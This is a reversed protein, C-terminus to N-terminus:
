VVSKRDLEGEITGAFWDGPEWKRADGGAANIEAITESQEATLQGLRGRADYGKLERHLIHRRELHRLPILLLDLNRNSSNFTKRLWIFRCGFVDECLQRVSEGLEDETMRNQLPNLSM